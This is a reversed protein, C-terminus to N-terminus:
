VKTAPRVRELIDKPVNYSEEKGDISITVLWEKMDPLEVINYGVNKMAASTASPPKAPVSSAAAGGAAVTTGSQGLIEKGPAVPPKSPVEGQRRTPPTKQGTIVESPTKQGSDDGEPMGGKKRKRMTKRRYRKTRGVTKKANRRRASKAM